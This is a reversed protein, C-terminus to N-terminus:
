PGPSLLARLAEVLAEPADAHLDHGAGELAQTAVGAAELRAVTESDVFPSAGGYILGRLPAGAEVIPWLDAARQHTFLQELWPRDMQWGIGEPAGPPRARAAPVAQMMLWPVLRAPAGAAELAAAMSPRDPAWPPAALLADIVQAAGGPDRIPGPGIDLLAIEAVREPQAAAVQLSLRGGLSHGVWCLPGASAERPLAELVAQALSDLTPPGVPTPAQGHAPLDFTWISRSPDAKAWRRALGRLNRGTGLFGHLLLTHRPGDGSRWPTNM